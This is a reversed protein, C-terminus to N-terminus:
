VFLLGCMRALRAVARGVAPSIGAEFELQHPQIGVLGVQCGLEAALFEALTSPPQLHTSPGFGESAQWDLARITGPKEGMEAADILLVLDPRFRRLPGTFNEPALGAELLLVRSSQPFRKRLRRM